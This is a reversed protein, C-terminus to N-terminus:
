KGNGEALEQQVASPLTKMREQIAQVDVDNIGQNPTLVVEQKDSMGFYNKGYFMWVIPNLKGEMTATEMFNKVLYKIKRAADLKFSGSEGHEWNNLTERSLGLAMACSDLTPRVQYRVCYDFFYWNVREVIEEDTKVRTQDYLIKMKMLIDATSNPEVEYYCPPMQGNKGTKPHLEREIAKQLKRKKADSMPNDATAIKAPKGARTLGNAMAVGGECYLYLVLPYLLVLVFKGFLFYLLLM